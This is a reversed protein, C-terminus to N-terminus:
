YKGPWRSGHAHAPPTLRVSVIDRGTVAIQDNSVRLPPTSAVSRPAHNRLHSRSNVTRHVPIDTRSMLASAPVLAMVTLEALPSRHLAQPHPDDSATLDCLQKVQRAQGVQRVQELDHRSAVDAGLHEIADRVPPADFTAVGVVSIQDGTRIDVDHQDRVRVGEMGLYRKGGNGGALVDEDLLRHAHRQALRVLDRRCLPVGPHDHLDAVHAPVRWRKDLRASQQRFDSGDPEGTDM